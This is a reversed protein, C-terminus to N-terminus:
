PYRVKVDYTRYTQASPNDEVISLTSTDGSHKDGTAQCISDMSGLPNLDDAGPGFRKGDIASIYQLKGGAAGALRANAPASQARGLILPGFFKEGDAGTLIPSEDQPDELIYGLWGTSRGARLDRNIRTLHDTAIAYNQNQKSTAGYTNMGVLRGDRDLLPGGSNGGNIAADTQVVDPYMPSQDKAQVISIVGSTTTLPDGVALTGPFGIAVVPDGESLRDQTVLPMTRLGATDPTRVLAVDQCFNIAVVRADRAKGGPLAVKVTQGASAVHANTVIEGRKADLVWGTGKGIRDNPLELVKAVDHDLKM